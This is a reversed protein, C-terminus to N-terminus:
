VPHPRVDAHEIVREMRHAASVARERQGTQRRARVGDFRPVLLEARLRLADGDARLFRLADGEDELDLSINSWRNAASTATEVATSIRAPPSTVLVPEPRETGSQGFVYPQNMNVNGSSFITPPM